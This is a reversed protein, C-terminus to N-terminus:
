KPAPAAAAFSAACQRERRRWRCLWQSGSPWRVPSRPAGAPETRVVQDIAFGAARLTGTDPPQLRLVGGPPQALEDSIGAPAVEQVRRRLRKLMAPEPETVTLSQVAPGYHALNAGTGGGIELTRSTAGAPLNARHVALGAAETKAIFRDYTATGRDCGVCSRQGAVIPPRDKSV